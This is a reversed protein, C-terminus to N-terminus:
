RSRTRPSSGPGRSHRASGLSTTRARCRSSCQLNYGYSSYHYATGPESVLPDEAFLALSDTVDDYHTRLFAPTREGDHTHRTGALHTLLLRPTVGPHHFAPLYASVPEDLALSGREVLTLATAGTFAKM